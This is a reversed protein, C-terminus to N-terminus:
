KLEADDPRAYMTNAFTKCVSAASPSSIDDDRKALDADEDPGAYMTGTFTKRVSVQLEFPHVPVGNRRALDADEVPGAYMTGTFTKRVSAPSAGSSDSDLRSGPVSFQGERKGFTGPGLVIPYRPAYIPAALVAACLHLALITSVTARM